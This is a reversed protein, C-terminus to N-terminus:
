SITHQTSNGCHPGKLSHEHITTIHRKQRVKEYIVTSIIPSGTVHRSYAQRLYRLDHYDLHELCALGIESGQIRLQPTLDAHMYNAMRCTIIFNAHNGMGAIMVIQTYRNRMGICVRDTLLDHM